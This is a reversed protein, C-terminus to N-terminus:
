DPPQSGSGPRMIMKHAEVQPSNLFDLMALEVTRILEEKHPYTATQEAVWDNLASELTSQQFIWVKSMTEITSM